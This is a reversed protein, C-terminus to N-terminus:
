WRPLGEPFAKRIKQFSRQLNNLVSQYNVDLLDAIEQYSKSEFYHLLIIEKQRSTLTNLLEVIQAKQIGSEEDQIMFDEPSFEIEGMSTGIKKLRNQNSRLLERRFSKLVYADPAPHEQIDLGKEIFQLFLSQITDEVHARDGVLKLGYRLMIPYTKGYLKRLYRTNEDRKM